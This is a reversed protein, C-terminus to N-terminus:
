HEKQNWNIFIQFKFPKGKYKGGSIGSFEFGNNEHWYISVKNFLPKEVIFAVIPTNITKLAKQFITTGIGKRKYEPFVSIQDLYTFESEENLLLDKTKENEFSLNGIIDRVKIITYKKRYITAFGVIIGDNNKAIYIDTFPDNILNKYYEIGVEKRLFGKDELDKRQKRTIKEIDRIEILNKKLINHIGTSDGLNAIDITIELDQRM